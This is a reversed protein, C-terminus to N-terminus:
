FCKNKIENICRMIFKDIDFKMVDNLKLSRVSIFNGEIENDGIVILYPIKFKIGDKIKQEITKSRIDISIRNHYIGNDIIYKMIRNCEDYYKESIPLIRIQEPALWLPLNGEYHELLLGFFREMSGFLARHLMYPRSRKGDRDVYVMNFKEPLNFDLQITSMQWERNFSDRIKLDIKPGYFIGGNRDIEYEIGVSKISDELLKTTFEWDVLEGTSKDPRTALYMKIDKFGFINWLSMSFNLTNFIEDKLQEKTCIIHADDQTFGRARLLGHTVGSKEHRYVTGLEAWRIPLEKYSRLKSKYIEIHFPCNMPKVYYNNNDMEISPYMNDKYYLLHGSTEWLKSSGIHPTSVLEYRNKYHEDKWFQEIENKIIMGKPHWLILGSGVNESTSYLNLKDGLIRHDALKKRELSILYSDLQEKKEFVTGYIRQLMPNEERGKFYSGAISLLKIEGAQSSSDLHPGRCLDTFKGFKYLTIKEDDGIDMVREIKYKQGIDRFFQMAYKKTVEKKEFPINEKILTNIVDEIKQFDSPTLRHKMDFDYYFGNLISSGIDFLTDPYLSHIAAAMIHAVSHRLIDLNM